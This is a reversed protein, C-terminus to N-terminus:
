RCQTGVVLRCSLTPENSLPLIRQGRAIRSVTDEFSAADSVLSECSLLRNSSTGNVNCRKSGHQLLASNIHNLLLCKLSLRKLSLCEICSHSRCRQTRHLRCSGVVFTTLSCVCNPLAAFCSSRRPQIVTAICKLASLNIEFHTQWGISPCAVAGKSAVILRATESSTSCIFHRAPWTSVTHSCM